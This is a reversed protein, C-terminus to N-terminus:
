PRRPEAEPTRALGQAVAWAAVQARSSFGLKRIIHKVHLRATGETIVLAGGIERSTLGQAVLAAVERERPTLELGSTGGGPPAAALAEELARELPLGRGEAWAAARAAPDLQGRVAELTRAYDAANAPWVVAGIAERLAAAAGLLRAARAPQQLASLVGAVADLCDAVGRQDGQRRFLELSERFLRLARQPQGGRLALYGLNHLLSPVTGSLGQKRLLALSEEYRATALAVDGLSRALDGLINLAQAMGWEDGLARWRALAEELPARAASHDPGLALMGLTLVAHAAGWPDGVEEFLRLSEEAWDRAATEDSVLPLAQLTYALERKDGLARWLRASEQLRDHAVARQGLLWALEGAAHLARARHAPAARPCAALAADLWDLGESVDGRFVWFWFLAAALRLGLESAGPQGGHRGWALAARLNDQETALREVRDGRRASMLWPEAREALALFYRAHREQVADAEAQLRLRARAYQRVPELQRYRAAGPALPEVLSKEVLATLLLVVDASALGAGGCIAEAAEIDFSGAFVALRRFLAQEAETLLAHSWDLTAALTQQRPSTRSGGALLRLADDLRAALPELGLAGVQAAALEIGLPLGELRRCIAAVTAANEVTLVFGPQRARARAVFLAIAEIQGLAELPLVEAARPLALPPVRWTVEGPIRLPERGTALVRLQPCARLLTEALRAVAGLLHECNDLVLLLRRDALAAALTALLPRGATGRVGLAAGLARPVLAWEGLPALEVLWVGDPFSPLLDSALRLALRTKGCGGPGTLTLLRVSGLLRKLEALERERGVFSAVEAPLNHRATRPASRTQHLTM